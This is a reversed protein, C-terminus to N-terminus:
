WETRKNNDNLSFIESRKLFGTKDLISAINKITFQIPITKVNGQIKEPLKKVKIKDSNM